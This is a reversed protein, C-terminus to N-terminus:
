NSKDNRGRLEEYVRVKGYDKFIEITDNATHSDFNILIDDNIIFDTMSLGSKSPSPNHNIQDQLHEFCSSSDSVDDFCIRGQGLIMNSSGQLKNSFECFSAEPQNRSGLIFNKNSSFTCLPNNEKRDLTPCLTFNDGLPKLFLLTKSMDILSSLISIELSESKKFGSYEEESCNPINNNLTGGLSKSACFLPIELKNDFTLSKLPFAMINNEALFNSNEFGELKVLDNHVLSNLDLKEIARIM